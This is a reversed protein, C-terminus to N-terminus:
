AHRFHRRNDLQLGNCLRIFALMRRNFHHDLSCEDCEVVRALPCRDLGDFLEDFSLIVHIALLQRRVEFLVEFRRYFGTFDHLNSAFAHTARELKWRLRLLLLSLSWGEVSSRSVRLRRSVVNFSSVMVLFYSTLSKM